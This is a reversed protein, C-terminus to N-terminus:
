RRQTKPTRKSTKKPSRRDATGPRPGSRSAATAPEPRRVPRLHQLQVNTGIGLFIFSILFFAALLIAVLRVWFSLRDRNMMM